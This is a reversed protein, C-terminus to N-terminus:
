YHAAIDKYIRMMDEASNGKSFKGHAVAAIKKLVFENCDTGICISHIQIGRPDTESPKLYAELETLKRGSSTDDGDSLVIVGYRRTDAFQKRLKELDEVGAFVADYLATGGGASTTGIEEVLQEGISAKTGRVRGTYVTGDFPIWILIDEPDVSRIFEQAGKIAAAIKKGSMSGSKDFVLALISHKKNAHWVEAIREIVLTEPVELVNLRANPNAGMSPEIPTGLKVKPDVPRLGVSLVAEQQESALLFEKFLGAGIIQEPTVWPVNNLIGFPHGVVVTGDQPYAAVLPERMEHGYKRNMLIVNSEYTIVADLYEPGGNRMRDLLWVDSKGSHVKGKEIGAIFAGCGNQPTVDSVTLAKLRKMGATCMSIIGLTGSNSEGFYGYGFKFKGWEPKGVSKWGDTYEALARIKDWTCQASADPWCGLAKARSQWMAVVLPTRVLVPAEGSMPKSGHHIQYDKKFKELWSEEGPSLITPKITGKMTHTVMTGSRYDVDRGDIKEKLVHVQVPNGNVQLKADVRSAVNFKAVAERLWDEKTNSSAISIPIAKGSTVRSPTLDTQPSVTTFPQTQAGGNTAAPPTSVGTSVLSRATMIIIVLAVMGFAMWAWHKGEM